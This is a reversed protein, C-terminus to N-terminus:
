CMQKQGCILVFFRPIGPMKQAKKHCGPCWRFPARRTSRRSRKTATWATISRPSGRSPLYCIYLFCITYFRYYEITPISIYIYYKPFWNTSLTRNQQYCVMYIFILYPNTHHYHKTEQFLYLRAIHDPITNNMTYHDSYLFQFFLFQQHYYDSNTSPNQIIITSYSVQTHGM